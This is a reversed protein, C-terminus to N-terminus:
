KNMRSTHYKEPEHPSMVKIEVPWDFEALHSGLDNQLADQDYGLAIVDPKYKKVVEWGSLEADGIVIEDAADSVRLHEMRESVTHNPEHGKLREVIHDLALVVILYDGHGRAEKLFHKHGEHLGDFVGFVMVKKM